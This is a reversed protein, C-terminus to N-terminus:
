CQKWEVSAGFEEVLLLGEWCQQKPEVSAGSSRPCRTHTTMRSLGDDQRAGRM